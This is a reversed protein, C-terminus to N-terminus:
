KRKRAATVKARAFPFVGFLDFPVIEGAALREKVFAKLTASHVGENLDIPRATIKRVEGVFAIAEARENKGFSVEVSTKILGGFGNAELWAHAAAKREESIHCEVDDAVAVRSGDDLRLESMGVSRMLEPLDEREVKRLEEKAAKLQEERQEVEAKRDLLVAALGSIQALLDAEPPASSASEADAQLEAPDFADNM